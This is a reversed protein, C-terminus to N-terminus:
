DSEEEERGLTIDKAKHITGAKLLNSLHVDDGQQQLSRGQTILWRMTVLRGLRAVSQELTVNLGLDEDRVGQCLPSFVTPVELRVSEVFPPNSGRFSVHVTSDPPPRDRVVEDWLFLCDSVVGLGGGGLPEVWYRKVAFPTAPNFQPPYIPFVVRKPNRLSWRSVIEEAVDFCLVSPRNLFM